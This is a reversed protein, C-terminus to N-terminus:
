GHCCRLELLHYDPRTEVLIPYGILTLSHRSHRLLKQARRLCLASLLPPAYVLFCAPPRSPLLLPASSPIDAGVTPLLAQRDRPFLPEGAWHLLLFPHPVHSWSLSGILPCYMCAPKKWRPVAHQKSQYTNKVLVSSFSSLASCLLHHLSACPFLTIVPPHRLPLMSIISHTQIVHCVNVMPQSAGAKHNTRLPYRDM